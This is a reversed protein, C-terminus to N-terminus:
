AAKEALSSSAPLRRTAVIEAIVSVAIEPPSAAGIALGIPAHIRTLDNDSVGAARMRELRKAHTRRSGLAGIYFCDSRLAALLAQDDIKPDHSLLAVATSSDLHLRPLVDHPWDQLLAVDPFRAPTAFATRPDIITVDIDVLQAMTALAQAIHVAGVILLRTSAVQVTVFFRADGDEVIGSKGAHFLDAIRRRLVPDLGMDNTTAIRPPGGRMDIVLAISRREEHAKAAAELCAALADDLAEVYIGIRGGCSLGSKWALEDSVGFELLRAEHSRVIDLAEAIM